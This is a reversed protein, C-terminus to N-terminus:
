NKAHKHDNAQVFCQKLNLELVRVNVRTEYTKKKKREKQVPLILISCEEHKGCMPSTRM